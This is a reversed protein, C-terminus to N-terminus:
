RLLLIVEDGFLSVKVKEQLGGSKIAKALALRVTQPKRGAKAVDVEMAQEGSALFAEVLRPYFDSAERGRRKPLSKVDKPILFEAVDIDNRTM